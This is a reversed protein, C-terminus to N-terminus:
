QQRSMRSFNPTRPQDAVRGWLPPQRKLIL